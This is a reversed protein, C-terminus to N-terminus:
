VFSTFKFCYFYIQLLLFLNLVYEKNNLNQVLVQIHFRYIYIQLIYIQLIYIKFRKVSATHKINLVSYFTKLTTVMVLMSFKSFTLIIYFNTIILLGYHLTIIKYKFNSVIFYAYIKLHM